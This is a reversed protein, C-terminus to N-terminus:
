RAWRAVRVGYNSDFELLDRRCLAAITGARYNFVIEAPLWPGRAKSMDKFAALVNAQTKTLTPMKPM